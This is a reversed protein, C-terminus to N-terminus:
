EGFNSQILAELAAIAAEEDEGEATIEVQHNEAVGITLVKLISKANVWDSNRTLNKVNIKSKYKGSTKVFEAAPRAHLGVKNTIMIELSKM